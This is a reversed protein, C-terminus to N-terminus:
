PSPIYDLPLSNAFKEYSWYGEYFLDLPSLLVGTKEIMSPTQLPILSSTQFSPKRTRNFSNRTIFGKEEKEETYVISLNDKFDLYFYGSKKRIVDKIPVNSKYLYDKFKPLRSKRLVFLASDIATKPSEIKTSFNLNTKTLVVLERAKKIEEEKPRDPNPLRKFQHVIFGEEYTANNILTKYFHVPSGKYAKIRNKKWRRKKRKNGNLNEYRSYGLYTVKNNHIVFEQLDYTIKYGLGKNKIQLPEKATATLKRQKSDYQFHLVKPNLLTCNASLETQGIFANKFLSLNYKWNEDYKTKEIIIEELINENELLAFTLPKTYTETNITYNITKFGLYSIILESTVEKVSLSFEGKNNTTTGIATNNVYVVADELPEKQSYVTGKIIKQSFVFGSTFLILFLLRYKM